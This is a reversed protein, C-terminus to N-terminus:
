LAYTVKTGEIVLKKRNVLSQIVSAVQKDNLTPKFFSKISSQLTAARTPRTMGKLRKLVEAARSETNAEAQTVM